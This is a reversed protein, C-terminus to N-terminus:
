MNMFRNYDATLESSLFEGLIILYLVVSSTLECNDSGISSDHVNNIRKLLQKIKPSEKLSIFTMDSGNIM